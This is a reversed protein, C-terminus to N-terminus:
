FQCWPSGWGMYPSSHFPTWLPGTYGAQYQYQAYWYYEAYVRYYYGPQVRITTTGAEWRNTRLNLWTDAINNGAQNVYAAKWDGAAYHVWSTGNWRAVHVRFRVRQTPDTVIAGNPYMAINFAPSMTPSTVVIRGDFFCTAQVHTFTGIAARSPAVVALAVFIAVTVAVVLPRVSPLRRSLHANM